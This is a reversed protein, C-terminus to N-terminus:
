RMLILTIYKAILRENVRATVPVADGDADYQSVKVADIETSAYTLYRYNVADEYRSEYTVAGVVEVFLFGDLEVEKDFEVRGEASLMELGDCIEEAILWENTTERM